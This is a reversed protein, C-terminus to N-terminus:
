VLIRGMEAMYLIMTMPAVSVKLAIGKGIESICLVKGDLQKAFGFGAQLEFATLQQVNSLSAYNNPDVTASAVTVIHNANKSYSWGLIASYTNTHSPRFAGIYTDTTDFTLIVPVVASEIRSDRFAVPVTALATRTNSM